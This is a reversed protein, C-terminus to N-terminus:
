QNYKNNISNFNNFFLDSIKKMGIYNYHINDERRSLFNYSSRDMNQPIFIVNKLENSVRKMAQGIKKSGVQMILFPMKPYKFADRSKIILNTLNEAYTDSPLPGWKQDSDSEGQVWLMGMIQYDLKDYKSLERDVDNLLKHFLKPRSLENVYQAKEKTWNPNWCGYLSAGGLARKIFLFKKNPHKKSLEIGFFIEPGFCSDLEFKKKKWDPPITVNLPVAENGNEVFSVNEKANELDKLDVNSLNSADAAGAMNSQGALIFVNVKDDSLVVQSYCSLYGIFLLLFKSLLKM